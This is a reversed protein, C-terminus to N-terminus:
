ATTRKSKSDGQTAPPGVEGCSPCWTPKAEVAKGTAPKSRARAGRGELIRGVQDLCEELTVQYMGGRAGVYGCNWAALAQGFRVGAELEDPTVGRLGEAGTRGLKHLIGAICWDGAGATDKVAPAKLAELTRWPTAVREGFRARYRLGESGLTEVQLVQNASFEFGEPLEALREHSYKIIHSISWAERFLSQDGVASPEFVVVAGLEEARAALIIAGRSV